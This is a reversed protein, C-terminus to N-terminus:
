AKLLEPSVSSTSGGPRVESQLSQSARPAKWEQLWGETLVHGGGDGGATPSPVGSEPPAGEPPPPLAITPLARLLPENLLLVHLLAHNSGHTYQLSLNLAELIAILHEPHTSDRICM